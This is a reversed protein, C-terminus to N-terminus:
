ATGPTRRRAPLHIVLGDRAVTARVGRDKGMARVRAAIRRGDSALIETGCHTFVAEPVGEEKCWALQAAVPAHGILRGGRRRILPRTLTAGDGVYLQVGALAERRRLISVVDPVYFIAVDGATVRYGVAPARLSHEVPFAEFALPGIGLPRRPRVVARRVTAAGLLAWTEETALVPCPIDAGLGGAHDPHGHTLLVAHPRLRGARGLWDEGCDIMVRTGRWAVLAASHRRHLRTSIDTYGRTGLFTLRM